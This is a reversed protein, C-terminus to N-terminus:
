GIIVAKIANTTPAVVFTVTTVTTSTNVIDAELVADTSADRIQVVVDKTGLSHTLAYALTAGDGFNFIKKISFNVLDAPTVAKNTIVKAETETQSAFSTVNSSFSVFVLATTGLVITGNNTCVYAIDSNITGEEVFVASEKITTATNADSARVPAGASQVVYIGNEAGATQDKILIRDGTVLTVGDIVSSNAFSSALTGAVTTGARVSAKWKLGVIANDVYAKVAKQTALRSDSNATLTGDVDTLLLYNWAGNQYSGFANLTTDYYVQGATPTSPASALNQIKANQIENKNFDYSTLIKKSM